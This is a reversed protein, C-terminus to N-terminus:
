AWYSRKLHKAWSTGTLISFSLSEPSLAPCCHPSLFLCGLRMRNRNFIGIHGFAMLCSIPLPMAFTCCRGTNGFVQQNELDCNLHCRNGTCVAVSVLNAIGLLTCDGWWNGYDYYNILLLSRLTTHFGMLGCVCNWFLTKEKIFFRVDNM